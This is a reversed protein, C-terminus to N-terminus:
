FKGGFVINKLRFIKTQGKPVEILFSPFIGRLVKKTGAINDGVTQQLVYDNMSNKEYLGVEGIPFFDFFLIGKFDEKWSNYFEFELFTEPGAWVRHSLLKVTKDNQILASDITVPITSKTEIMDTADPHRVLKAEPGTTAKASVGTGSTTVGAGRAAFLDLSFLIPLLLGLFTKLLFITLTKFNM